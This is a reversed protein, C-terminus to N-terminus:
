KAEIMSLHVLIMQVNTEVQNVKLLSPLHIIREKLPEVCNKMYTLHAPWVM